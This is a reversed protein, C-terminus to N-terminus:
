TGVKSVVLPALAVLVSACGTVALAGPVGAAALVPGTVAVQLLPRASFVALWDLSAVVGLDAEPIRHQVTTDWLSGAVSSGAGATVTAAVM